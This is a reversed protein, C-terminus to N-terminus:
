LVKELIVKGSKPETKYGWNYDTIHMLPALLPVDTLFMEEKGAELLLIKWGAVESLRNALVSGGSGAGVIIFDWTGANLDSARAALSTTLYFTFLSLFFM